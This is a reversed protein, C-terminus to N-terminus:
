LVVLWKAKEDLYQLCSRTANLFASLKYHFKDPDGNNLHEAMEEYFVEAEKLKDMIRWYISFKELFNPDGLDSLMITAGTPNELPPSWGSSPLASNLGLAHACIPPPQQGHDGAGDTRTRHQLPARACRSSQHHPIPPLIRRDTPLDITWVDPNDERLLLITPRPSEIRGHSPAPSRHHAWCPTSISSASSSASRMSTSGLGEPTHMQAQVSGRSSIGCMRGM